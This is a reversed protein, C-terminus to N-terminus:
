IKQLIQPFMGILLFVILLFVLNVSIKRIGYKKNLFETFEDLLQWVSHWFVMLVFAIFLIFFAHEELRINTSLSNAMLDVIPVYKM